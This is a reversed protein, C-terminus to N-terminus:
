AGVAEILPKGKANNQLSSITPLFSEHKSHHNNFRPDESFFEAWVSKEYKFHSKAYLVLEGFARHLDASEGQTLSRALENTLSFLKKHQRNIEEHGTEFNQPWPFVDFM